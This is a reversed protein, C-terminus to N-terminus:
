LSHRTKQVPRERSLRRSAPRPAGSGRRSKKRKFKKLKEDLRYIDRVAAALRYPPRAWWFVTPSQGGLEVVLAAVCVVEGSLFNLTQM